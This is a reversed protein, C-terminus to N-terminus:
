FRVLKIRECSSEKLSHHCLLERPADLPTTSAVNIWLSNYFLGLNFLLSFCTSFM